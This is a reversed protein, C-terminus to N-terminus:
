VLLLGLTGSSAKRPAANERMDLHSLGGIGFTHLFLQRNGMHKQFDRPLSQMSWVNPQATEGEPDMGETEGGGGTFMKVGNREVATARM